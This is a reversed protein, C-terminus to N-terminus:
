KNGGNKSNALYIIYFTSLIAGIYTPLGTLSLLYTGVLTFIICLLFTLLANILKSANM